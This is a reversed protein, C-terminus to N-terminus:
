SRVCRSAACQLDGTDTTKSKKFFSKIGGAKSTGEMVLLARKHKSLRRTQQDFKRVQDHIRNLGGNSRRLDSAMKSPWLEFGCEAALSESNIFVTGM